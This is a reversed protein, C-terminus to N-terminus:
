SLQFALHSQSNKWSFVSGEAVWTHLGIYGGRAAGILLIYCSSVAIMGEFEEEVEKWKKQLTRFHEMM